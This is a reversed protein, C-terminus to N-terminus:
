PRPSRSTREGHRARQRANAAPTKWAFLYGERTLAVVEPVGDGDVDGARLATYVWGGTFKPWGEPEVGDADWAHVVYGGSSTIVEPRGDGTIDAVAPTVFLSIDEIVRPWADLTRGTAANWVAVVHDQYPMYRGLGATIAYNAGTMGAVVDPTGDLDVDAFALNALYTLAGVERTNRADGWGSADCSLATVLRGRGDLVEPCWGPAAIAVELRGDGEVDALVPTMTVGEGMYNVVSSLLGTAQYPWGPVIAGGPHLDGDAYLAYVYTRFPYEEDYENSGVVINPRGDGTIDGVAPTSYIRGQNHDTSADTALLVPFGPQRSGDPRWAYVKQDMAPLVIELLGDGDLDAPVPGAAIGPDYQHTEDVDDDSIPDRTVPFGTELSGSSTFVYLFGDLTSVLIEMDGDDDIDATAVGGLIGQRAPVIGDEAYPASELHAGPAGPDTGPMPGVRAPWGPLESGYGDVVHVTGDSTGVVIELTGDGDVDALTPSSEGPGLELPFGPLLDADDHLFFTKRYEAENGHDDTATLRLTIAYRNVEELKELLTDDGSIPELPAAPSLLARPISATDWAYITGDIAKTATGNRLLIFDNDRADAGPAWELRFDYFGARPAALHADVFITSTSAADIREYFRPSRIIVEPPVRYPAAMDVAHRANVRGYGFFQDWGPQSPVYPSRHLRSAPVDIDDASAILIARVEDASLELGNDLGRSFVLGAIGSIIAVSGTACDNTAAVLTLHAGYNNCGKYGLFTRASSPDIPPYFQITHVPLTYDNVGPPLHHFSFEDGIAAVVLVGRDHAYAFADRLFESNTIGGMAIGIVKAGRDVAYLVGQAIKNGEGMFSDSVRVPLIACNPCYGLDSGVEGATAAADTMVASGHYFDNSAEPDNDNWMFDWGAIDDIFGNEDTDLGDSFAM